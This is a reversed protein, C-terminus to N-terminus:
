VVSKRDRSVTVDKGTVPDTYTFEIIQYGTQPKITVKEGKAAETVDKGGVQATATVTDNPNDPDTANVTLTYKQVNKADFKVTGVVNDTVTVKWKNTGDPTATTGAPSTINLTASSASNNDPIAEITIEEDQGIGSEKSVRITGNGTSTSDKTITATYTGGGGNVTIANNTVNAYQAGKIKTGDKKVISLNRGNITFEVTGGNNAKLSSASNVLVKVTITGIKGDTGVSADDLNLLSFVGEGFNSISGFKTTDITPTGSISLADSPTCVFEFMMGSLYDVDAEATVDWKLEIIDNDNVNDLEKPSEAPNVATINIYKEDDAFVSTMCSLLLVISLIFSILKRMKM